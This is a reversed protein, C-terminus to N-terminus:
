GKTAHGLGGGQRKASFREVAQRMMESISLAHNSAIAQLAQLEDDNVRTSIVNYRPTDKVKGM